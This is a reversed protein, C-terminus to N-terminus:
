VESIWASSHTRTHASYTHARVEEYIDNSKDASILMDRIDSWKTNSAVTMVDVDSMREEGSDTLPVLTLVAPRVDVRQEKTLTGIEIVSRAFRPTADTGYHALLLEAVAHPVLEYDSGELLHPRLVELSPYAPDRLRDNPIHPPPTTATPQVPQRTTLDIGVYAAWQHLWDSDIVHWVTGAAMTGDFVALVADREAAPSTSM